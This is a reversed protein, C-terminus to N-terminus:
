TTPDYCALSTLCASISAPSLALSPSSMPRIYPLVASVDIQLTPATLMSAADSQDNAAASAVDADGHPHASSSSGGEAADIVMPDM